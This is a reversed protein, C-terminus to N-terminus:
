RAEPDPSQRLGAGVQPIPGGHRLALTGVLFLGFGVALTAGTATFVSAVGWTAAIIGLVVPGATGGISSATSYVGVATGRNEVATRNAM